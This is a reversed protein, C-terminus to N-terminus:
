LLCARLTPLFHELPPTIRDPQKALDDWRRVAIADAAQPLTAFAAAEAAAFPGGQLSLSRVSAPSLTAFYDPETGCLWRKAPVHLRVIAAVEPQFWRAVWGGGIAEHQRDIPQRRGLEAHQDLLHGIDHLLAGAIVSPAAGAQEALAACQLAHDRQTVPENGYQNAGHADVLAVIHAIPDM